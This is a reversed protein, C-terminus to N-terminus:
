NFYFEILCQTGGHYQGCKLCEITELPQYSDYQISQNCFMAMTSPLELASHSHPWVQHRHCCPPPQSRRAEQEESGSHPHLLQVVWFSACLYCYFDLPGISLLTSRCDVFLPKGIRSPEIFGLFRLVIQLIPLLSKSPSRITIPRINLLPNTWWLIQIEGRCLLIFM